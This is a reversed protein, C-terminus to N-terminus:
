VNDDNQLLELFLKDSFWKVVDLSTIEGSAIAKQIVGPVPALLYEVVSEVAEKIIDENNM